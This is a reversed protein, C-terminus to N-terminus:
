STSFTGAPHERCRRRELQRMKGTYYLMQLRQSAGSADTSSASFATGSRPESGSRGAPYTPGTPASSVGCSSASRCSSPSLSPQRLCPRPPPREAPAAVRRPAGAAGCARQEGWAEPVPASDAAAHLRDYIRAERPCRPPSCPGLTSRPSPASRASPGCGSLSEADLRGELVAIAGGLGPVGQGALERLQQLQAAIALLQAAAPSPPSPQRGQGGGQQPSRPVGPPSRPVERRPPAGRGPPSPAHRAPSPSPSPSRCRAPSPLPSRLSAPPPAAPPRRVAKQQRRHQQPLPPTACCASCQPPKAGQGRREGRRGQAGGRGGSPSRRAPRPPGLAVSLEAHLLDIVARAEAALRDRYRAEDTIIRHYRGLRAGAARAVAGVAERQMRERDALAAAACAARGEEEAGQVWSRSATAARLAIRRRAAAEGRQLAGRASPEAASRLLRIFAAACDCLLRSRGASEGAEAHRAATDRQAARQLVQARGARRAAAAAARASREAEAIHASRERWEALLLCAEYARLPRQPAALAGAAAAYHRPALAEASCKTHACQPVPGGRRAPQPATRRAPVVAPPPPAGGRAPQKRRPQRRGGAAPHPAPAAAPPRRRQPVPAPGVLGELQSRLTDSLGAAGSSWASLVGYLEEELALVRYLETSGSM